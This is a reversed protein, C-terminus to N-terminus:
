GIVWIGMKESGWKCMLWYWNLIVGNVWECLVWGQMVGIVWIGM